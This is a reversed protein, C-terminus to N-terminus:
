GYEAFYEKIGAVEPPLLIKKRRINIPSCISEYPLSLFLCHLRGDANGYFVNREYHPCRSTNKIYISYCMKATSNLM